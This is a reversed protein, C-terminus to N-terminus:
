EKKENYNTNASYSIAPKQPIDKLLSQAFSDPTYNNPLPKIELGLAKYQEEYNNNEM